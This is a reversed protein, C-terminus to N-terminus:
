TGKNGGGGGGGGDVNGYTAEQGKPARNIINGAVSKWNNQSCVKIPSGKRISRGVAVDFQKATVSLTKTVIKGHSGYKVALAKKSLSIVEGSLCQTKTKAGLVKGMIGTKASVITGAVLVFAM